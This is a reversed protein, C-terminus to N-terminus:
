LLGVLGLFAGVLVVVVILWRLIDQVRLSALHMPGANLYAPSAYLEEGILPDQASAFLVAQAPLNDSGALSYAESRDAAETLLGAEIGFNGMLVNTSVQEDSMLPLAGAAYSFPTLGTLRGGPVQVANGL